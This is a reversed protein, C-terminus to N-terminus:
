AVSTVIEKGDGRRWKLPNSRALRATWICADKWALQEAVVEEIHAAEIDGKPYFGRRVDYTAPVEGVKHAELIIGCAEHKVSVLEEARENRTRWTWEKKDHLPFPFGFEDIGIWKKESESLEDGVKATEEVPAPTPHLPRGRGAKKGGLSQRQRIKSQEGMVGALPGRELQAECHAIANRLNQEPDGTSFYTSEYPTGYYSATPRWQALMTPGCERITVWTGTEEHEAAWIIKPEHLTAFGPSVVFRTDSEPHTKVTL